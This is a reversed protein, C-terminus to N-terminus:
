EIKASVPVIMGASPRHKLSGSDELSFFFVLKVPFEQVAKNILLHMWELPASRYNCKCLLYVLSQERARLSGAMASNSNM